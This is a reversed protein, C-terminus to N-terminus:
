EPLCFKQKEWQPKRCLYGLECDVHDVCTSTCVGYDALRSEFLCVQNCEEDKKCAAGEAKKQTPAPSNQEAFPDQQKRMAERDKADQELEHDVVKDMMDMMQGFPDEAHILAFALAMLIMLVRM